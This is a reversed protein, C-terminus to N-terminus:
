YREEYTPKNIKSNVNNNQVMTELKNIRESQEKIVTLFMNFLTKISGINYGSTFESSDRNSILAIQNELSDLSSNSNSNLHLEKQKEVVERLQHVLLSVNTQFTSM